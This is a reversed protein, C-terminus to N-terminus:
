GRPQRGFSCFGIVFIKFNTYLEELTFAEKATYDSCRLDFKCDTHRGHDEMWEKFKQLLNLLYEKQGELGNEFDYLTEIDLFYKGATKDYIIELDNLTYFGAPSNTLDDYSKIGWIFDYNELDNVDNM